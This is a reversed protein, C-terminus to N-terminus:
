FHFRATNIIIIKFTIDCPMRLMMKETIQPHQSFTINEEFVSRKGDWIFPVPHLVSGFDFTLFVFCAKRSKNDQAKDEARHSHWIKECVLGFFCPQFHTCLSSACVAHQKDQPPHFNKKENKKKQTRQISTLSYPLAFLLNRYNTYNSQNHAM